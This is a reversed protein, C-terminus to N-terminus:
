LTFDGYNFYRNYLSKIGKVIKDNMEANAKSKNIEAKARLYFALSIISTVIWPYSKRLTRNNLIQDMKWKPQEGKLLLEKNKVFFNLYKSNEFYDLHIIEYDNNNYFRFLYYQYNYEFFLNFKSTFILRSKNQDIKLKPWYSIDDNIFLIVNNFTFYCTKLDNQNQGFIEALVSTDIDYTQDQNKLYINDFLFIKKSNLQATKEFKEILELAFITPILQNESPTLDNDLTVEQIYHCSNGRMGSILSQNKNLYLNLLVKPSELLYNSPKDKASLLDASTTKDNIVFLYNEVGLYTLETTNALRVAVLNNINYNNNITVNLALDKFTQPENNKIKELAEFITSYDTVIYNVDDLGEAFIPFSFKQNKFISDAMKGGAFCSTYYFTHTKINNELLNLLDKFAEETIGVTQYITSGHGSFYINWEIDNTESKTKFLEKLLAIFRNSKIQLGYPFIEYYKKIVEKKAKALKSKNVSFDPKISQFKTLNFGLNGKIQQAYEDPILLLFDDNKYLNWGLMLQEHDVNVSFFVPDFTINKLNEWVTLDTLIPAKKSKLLYFLEQTVADYGSNEQMPLDLVIALNRQSSFEVESYSSFTSLIICISIFLRILM